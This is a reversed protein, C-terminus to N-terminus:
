CKILTILTHCLNYAYDVIASFNKSSIKLLNTKYYKISEIKKDDYYLDKLEESINYRPDNNAQSIIHNISAGYELYIGNKNKIFCNLLNRKRLKNINKMFIDILRYLTFFGTEIKLPSSADSVFIFDCNTRGKIEGCSIDYLSELAMNDYIGGDYITIKKLKPSIETQSNYKYWKYYATKLKFPGIVLPFAASISIVDSLSLNNRDTYGLQYDGMCDSKIRWMNGTERSTACIDWMVNTNLDSFNKNIRWNQSILKSLLKRRNFIILIIFTFPNFIFFRFLLFPNFISRKTLYYELQPYVKELFEQDNPWKGDNISFILGLLLSGGSVSSLHVVNELKKNDALYKLIGIHFVAARIGGGSLAIGIKTM